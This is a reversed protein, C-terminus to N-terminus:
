AKTYELLANEEKTTGEQIIKKLDLVKNVFHPIIVIIISKMMM